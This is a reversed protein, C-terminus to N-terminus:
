SNARGCRSSQRCEALALTCGARGEGGGRVVPSGIAIVKSQTRFFLAGGPTAPSAMCPEGLDNTAAVSFEPAVSVVFVQGQESPGFFNGAM